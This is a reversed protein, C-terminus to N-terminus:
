NHAIKKFPIINNSDSEDKKNYEKWDNVDRVQITYFTTNPFNAPFENKYFENTVYYQPRIQTKKYEIIEISFLKKWKSTYSCNQIGEYCDGRYLKRM